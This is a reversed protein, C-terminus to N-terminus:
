DATVSSSNMIENGTGSPHSRLGRDQIESLYAFCVGCVVESYVGGCIGLSRMPWMDALPLSRPKFFQLEVYM